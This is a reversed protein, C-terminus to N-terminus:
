ERATDPFMKIHEMTSTKVMGTMNSQGAMLYIKLPKAHVVLSSAAVISLVISRM